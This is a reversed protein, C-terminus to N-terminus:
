RPQTIAIAEPNAPTEVPADNESQPARAPTDASPTGELEELRM